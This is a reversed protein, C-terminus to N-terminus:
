KKTDLETSNLVKMHDHLWRWGGDGSSEMEGFQSETELFCQSGDWGRVGVM